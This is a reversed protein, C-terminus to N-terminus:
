AFPYKDFHIGHVECIGTLYEESPYFYRWNPDGEPLAPNPPYELIYKIWTIEMIGFTPGEIPERFNEIEPSQIFINDSNIEIENMNTNEIEDMHIQQTNGVELNDDIRQRKAEEDNFLDEPIILSSDAKNKLENICNQCLRTRILAKWKGAQWGPYNYVSSRWLNEESVVSFVCDMIM